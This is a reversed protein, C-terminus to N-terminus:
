KLIELIDFKITFKTKEGNSSNRNIKNSENEISRTCGNQISSNSQKLDILNNNEHTSTGQVISPFVTDIEDCHANESFIMCM